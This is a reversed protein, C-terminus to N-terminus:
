EFGEHGMALSHLEILYGNYADREPDVKEREANRSSAGAGNSLRTAPGGAQDSSLRTSARPDVRCQLNLMHNYDDFSFVPQSTQIFELMAQTHTHAHSYFLDTRSTPCTV